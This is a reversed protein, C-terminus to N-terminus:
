RQQLLSIREEIYQIRKILFIFEAKTDQSFSSIIRYNFNDHVMQIKKLEREWFHIKSRIDLTTPSLLDVLIYSPCKINHYKKEKDILQRTYLSYMDIKRQLTHNINEDVRVTTLKRWCNLVNAYKEEAFEVLRIRQQLRLIDKINYESM